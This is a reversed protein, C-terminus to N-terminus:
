RRNPPRAYLPQWILALQFPARSQALAPSRLATLCMFLALRSRLIILINSITDKFVEAVMQAPRHTVLAVSCASGRKTSVRHQLKKAWHLRAELWSSLEQPSVPSDLDYATHLMLRESALFKMLIVHLDCASFFIFCLRSCFCSFSCCTQYIDRKQTYVFVLICLLRNESDKSDKWFHKNTEGRPKSFVTM